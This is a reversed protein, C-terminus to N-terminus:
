ASSPMRSKAKTEHARLHTYSVPIIRGNPLVYGDRSRSPYKWLEKGSGDMIYTRGGTALFGHTVKDEAQSQCVFSLLLTLTLVLYKM